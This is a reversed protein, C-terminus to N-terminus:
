SSLMYGYIKDGPKKQLPINTYGHVEPGSLYPRASAIYEIEARDEYVMLKVIGPCTHVEPPQGDPSGYNEFWRQYHLIDHFESGTFRPGGCCMGIMMKGDETPGIEKIKSVHDHGYFWGRAGYKLCVDTLETQEIMSPDDHYKEYDESTFLPGRRYTKAYTYVPPSDSVLVKKFSTPWGGIVNHSFVFKWISDGDRLAREFWKKQDKGLTWGDMTEPYVPTYGSADLIVFDVDNAWRVLHYNEVSDRAERLGLAIAEWNEPVRAKNMFSYRGPMRFLKRRWARGYPRAPDYGEEGDHNGTALDYMVYPTLPSWVKRYREWVKRAGENLDHKPMDPGWERNRVTTELGVTDGLNIIVDPDGYKLLFAMMDAILTGFPMCARYKEDPIFSPNILIEKTLDAIYEGNVIKDRWKGDKNNHAWKLDAYSHDDAIVWIEVPEDKLCRDPTKVTKPSLSKWKGKGERYEIRYSLYPGEFNVPIDLPGSVKEFLVPRTYPLMGERGSYSYFKIDLKKGDRPCVSVVGRNKSTFVVREAWEMDERPYPWEYESYLIRELRSLTRDSVTQSAGIRPFPSSVGIIGSAAMIGIKKLAKRRSIRTM